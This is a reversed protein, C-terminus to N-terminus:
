RGPEAVTVAFLGAGPSYGTPRRPLDAIMMGLDLEALLAAVDSVAARSLITITIQNDLNMEYHQYTVVSKVSNIGEYAIQSDRHVALGDLRFVPASIHPAASGGGEKASRLANRHIMISLAITKEGQTYVEAAGVSRATATDDFQRLLSNQTSVFLASRQLQVGVIGEVAALDYDTAAWGPPAPPLATAANFPISLFIGDRLDAVAGAMTAFAGCRRRCGAERRDEYAAAGSDIQANVEDLVAEKRDETLYDDFALMGAATLLLIGFLAIFFAIKKM